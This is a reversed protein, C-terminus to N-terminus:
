TMVLRRDYRGVQRKMQRFSVFPKVRERYMDYTDTADIWGLYSLMQRSDHVTKRGTRMVKKRVRRAKRTCKLMISRRLATHERYIRFGMYDLDRGVRGGGKQYDFLYVQWNGKMELGLVDRLYRGIKERMRHLARKNPGLVVMDDMYRVYYRAGLEEKIYHDLGTLYFNAFWQSTYFGIPIGVDGPGSDIIANVVGMFREDRIIRDLMAKLRDRPVSDFFKHVDMKLAYKCDRGGHRIWREIRKKALHGGRGPISGYSHEYMGKLFIPKLVNVVMHHLVQEEMTPVVIRRKKRRIGDYIEIPTHSIPLPSKVMKMVFPKREEERGKIYRAKRAKRGKGGKHRCANRVAEHYNEDSVLKEYLNKYTKM